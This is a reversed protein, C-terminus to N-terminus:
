RAGNDLIASSLLIELKANKSSLVKLTRARSVVRGDYRAKWIFPRTASAMSAACMPGKM